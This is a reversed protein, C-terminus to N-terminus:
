RQAPRAPVATWGGPCAPVNPYYGAPHACYYWYSLPAEGLPLPPAVQLPPAQVVVPPPAYAYWGGGWFPPGADYYYSPYYPYYPMGVGIGVRWHMHAQAVGCAGLALVAGILWRRGPSTANM